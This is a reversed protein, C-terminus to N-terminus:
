ALEESVVELMRELTRPHLQYAADSIARSPDPHTEAFFNEFGLAAVAKALRVSRWKDGRNTHTVDFVLRNPPYVAWLDLLEHLDVLLNGPYGTGRYTLWQDESGELKARAAEFYDARELTPQKLNVIKGTQAAANLLSTQRGLMAPIQIVDVHPAVCAAQWTEHIDTTLLLKPHNARIKIWAVEAELLGVGRPSGQLTRNAKDFSGKYVLTFAPFREFLRVLDDAFAVFLDVSEIACPGAIIKM